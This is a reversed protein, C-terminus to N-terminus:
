MRDWSSQRPAIDASSTRVKALPPRYVSCTRERREPVLVDRVGGRCALEQSADLIKARLRRVLRLFAPFAICGANQTDVEPARTQPCHVSQSM